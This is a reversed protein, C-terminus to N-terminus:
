TLLLFSIMFILSSILLILSEFFFFWFLDIFGFAPKKFPYVFNVFRQSFEGFFPSFSSLCFLFHFLFFRLPYQLFVFYWLLISHAIIHWCIQCALLFPCSERSICGELVGFSLWSSISWNFLGIVLYAISFTIFFVEWLCLDLVLHSWLLIRGFM